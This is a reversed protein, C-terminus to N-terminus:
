DDSKGLLLRYDIYISAPEDESGTARTYAEWSYQPHDRVLLEILKDLFELTYIRSVPYATMEENESVKLIEFELFDPSVSQISIELKLEDALQQTCDEFIRDPPINEKLNEFSM